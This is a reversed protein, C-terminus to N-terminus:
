TLLNLFNPASSQNNRGQWGSCQHSSNRVNGIHLPGSYINAFLSRRHMYALAHLWSRHMYALMAVSYVLEGVNFRPSTAQWTGIPYTATLKPIEEFDEQLHVRRSEGWSGEGDPSTSPRCGNLLTTLQMWNAPVLIYLPRCTLFPHVWKTCRFGNPKKSSIGKISFYISKNIQYTFQSYFAAVLTTLNFTSSSSVFDSLFLYWISWLMHKFFAQLEKPKLWCYKFINNQNRSKSQLISHIPYYNYLRWKGDNTIISNIISLKVVAAFIIKCRIYDQM